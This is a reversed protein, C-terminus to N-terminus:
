VLHEGGRVATKMSQAMDLFVKEFNKDGNRYRKVVYAVLDAAQIPLSSQSDVYEIGTVHSTQIDLIRSKGQRANALVVANQKQKSEPVYDSVIRVTDVSETTHVFQELNEFLITMAYKLTKDKNYTKSGRKNDVIVCFVKTDSGRVIELVADFIAIKQTITRARLGRKQGPVSGRMLDKGHLEWADPDDPALGRKFRQVASNLKTITAPSGIICVLVFEDSKEDSGAEDVYATWEVM